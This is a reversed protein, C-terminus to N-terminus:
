ATQVEDVYSSSFPPPHTHTLSLSIYLSLPVEGVYPETRSFVEYVMIGFAYQGM